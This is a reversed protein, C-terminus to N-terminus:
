RGPSVALSLLKSSIKLGVAAATENNIRFRIKTGERVFNVMGGNETFREMEGVTLVSAGKVAELVQALRSKESNSIFLIHCNTTEDLSTFEKIMLPHGDVAKDRLTKQLDEHFPNEGLVGIVLPSTPQPFAKQPWEIFRAFNFIFAAKIQYESPQPTQARGDVNVLLLGLLSLALSSGTRFRM